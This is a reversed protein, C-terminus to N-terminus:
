ANTELINLAKKIKIRGSYFSKGSIVGELNKQKTKNLQYLDEYSSLGGGVIIDKQTKSLLSNILNFDLGDLMGDRSIDTLIFGKVPRPNYLNIVEDVNLNSSETWGKIM